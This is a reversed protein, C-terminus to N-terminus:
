VESVEAACELFHHLTDQYQQNSKIKKCHKRRLSYYGDNSITGSSQQLIEVPDDCASLESLKASDDFSKSIVVKTDESLSKARQLEEVLHKDRTCKCKETALAETIASNVADSGGKSEEQLPGMLDQLDFAHLNSARVRRHLCPNDTPRCLLSLTRLQEEIHRVHDLPVAEGSLRVDNPVNFTSCSRDSHDQHKSSTPIDVQDVKIRPLSQSMNQSTNNEISSIQLPSSKVKDQILLSPSPNEPSDHFNSLVNEICSVPRQPAISESFLELSRRNKLSVSEFGRSINLHKGLALFAEDVSFRKRMTLSLSNRASNISLSRGHEGIMEPRHKFYSERKHPRLYPLVDNDNLTANQRMVSSAGKGYVECSQTLSKCNRMLLYEDQRLEGDTTCIVDYSVICDMIERLVTYKQKYKIQFNIMKIFKEHFNRFDENVKMQKNIYDVQDSYALCYSVYPQFLNVFNTCIDTLKEPNIAVNSQRATELLPHFFKLWQDVNVRCVEAINGFVSSGDVGEAFGKTRLHDFSNKVEVLLGLALIYDHETKLSEWITDQQLQARSDLDQPNSAIDRWSNELQLTTQLFDLNLQPLTPLTCVTKLGALPNLITSILSKLDM